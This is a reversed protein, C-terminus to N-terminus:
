TLKEGDKGVDILRELQCAAEYSARDIEDVIAVGKMASIWARVIQMQLALVQYTPRDGTDTM